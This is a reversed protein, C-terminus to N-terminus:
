LCVQLVIKGKSEYVFDHSLVVWDHNIRAM